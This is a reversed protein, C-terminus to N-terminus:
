EKQGPIIYNNETLNIAWATVILEKIAEDETNMTWDPSEVNSFDRNQLKISIWGYHPKEAIKLMAGITKSNAIRRNGYVCVYNEGLEDWKSNANIIYNSDLYNIENQWYENDDSINILNGNLGRISIWINRYKNGWNHPTEDTLELQGFTHKITFDDIGDDNIDIEFIGSQKTSILLYIANFDAVGLFKVSDISTILTDPTIDFYLINDKKKIESEKSCSLIEVIFFLGLILKLVTKNNM